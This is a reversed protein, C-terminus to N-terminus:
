TLESDLDALATAGIRSETASFMILGVVFATPVTLALITPLGGTSGILVDFNFMILILAAAMVVASLVPAIKTNWARSDLRPTTASSSSRPSPSSSTSSDRRRRRRHRSGWFFLTLVPDKGLMAFPIILLAAIATQTFSAIYPAKTKPHM